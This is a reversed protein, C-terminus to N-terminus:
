KSLLSQCLYSVHRTCVFHHIDILIDRFVDFNKEESSTIILAQAIKSIFM